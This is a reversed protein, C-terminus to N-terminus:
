YLILATLQSNLLDLFSACALSEALQTVGPSRGVSRGLRGAPALSAARSSRCAGFGRRRREAKVRLRAEGWISKKESGSEGM